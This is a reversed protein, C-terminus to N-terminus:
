RNFWGQSTEKRKAVHSSSLIRHCAEMTKDKHTKHWFQIPFWELSHLPVHLMLNIVVSIPCIESLQRGITNVRFQKTDSSLTLWCTKRRGSFFHLAINVNPVHRGRETGNSQMLAVWPKLYYLQRVNSSHRPSRKWVRTARASINWSYRQGDIAKLNGNTSSQRSYCQDLQPSWSPHRDSVALWIWRGMGHLFFYTPATHFMCRRSSAVHYTVDASTSPRYGLSISFSFLKKKTTDTQRNPTIWHSEEICAPLMGQARKLSVVRPLTSAHVIAAFCPPCVVVHDWCKRYPSWVPSLFNNGARLTVLANPTWAESM